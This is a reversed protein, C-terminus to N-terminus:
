EIYSIRIMCMSVDTIHRHTGQVVCQIYSEGHFCTRRVHKCCKSSSTDGVQPGGRCIVFPDTVVATECVLLQCRKVFACIWHLIVQKLVYSGSAGMCFIIRFPCILLTSAHWCVDESLTYSHYWTAVISSLSAALLALLKWHVRKKMNEGAEVQLIFSVAFPSEILLGDSQDHHRGRPLVCVYM